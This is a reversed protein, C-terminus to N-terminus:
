EIGRADSSRVLERLLSAHSLTSVGETADTLLGDGTCLLVPDNRSCNECKEAKVDVKVHVCATLIRRGARGVKVGDVVDDGAHEWVAVCLSCAVVRGGTGAGSTQPQASAEGGADCM